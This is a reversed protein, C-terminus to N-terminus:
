GFVVSGALPPPNALSRFNEAFSDASDAFLPSVELTFAPLGSPATDFKAGASQLWSAWLRQQDAKCTAPSDSGEANKVPSFDLPRTTENILPNRAFPLADFVFMEFKFGHPADPLITKGSPDLFPIKKHAPHFPLRFAPDSGSGVHRVFDAALIHIAISGASFRLAGSQPDRALMLDEPLNSYELVHLHGDHHQCFVGVKEEPYAKPLSKSSFDSEALLHFGIFEPDIPRVLPNDVQFYSITDCGLATIKELAGSRVLARVSGGHGDPSLAIEDPASLIIKGDTTVAPMTGQQFFLVLNPDLGFHHHQHFFAETDAHNLDSTMILWPIPKCYRAAAARIKEAFVQFLSKGTVPTIPLTGKPGDFGLRTGQGGAVTFAAVRGARLAAEGALKAANWADRSGGNEPRPTVPAPGLSSFLDAPGSKEPLGSVLRSIEDLDLSAAQAALRARQPDTLSDWFRFVHSQNAAAFSDLLPDSAVSM